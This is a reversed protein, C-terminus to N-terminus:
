SLRLKHICRMLFPSRKVWRKAKFAAAFGWVALQGARSTPWFTDVLAIEDPTYTDKYGAEGVGLDFSVLRGECCQRLIQVMLQEGSSWRVVDPSQDFSTFMGCCHQENTAAGFAAVIRDGAALAFLTIAPRGGDEPLRSGRDLFEFAGPADFPNTIGIEAMRSRKQEIFATLIQQRTAEDGATILRVPGAKSLSREKKRLKKRGDASLIRGFMADFDAELRRAYGFSPSPQGGAQALPNPVRNWTVPQNRLDFLDIDGIAAAVQDFFAQPGGHLDLSWRDQAYLPMNFNAHKGGPFSAIRLGGLRRIAFPLLAVPEQALEVTVVVLESGEVSGLTSGWAKVWDFRQYPTGLARREFARWTEEIAGLDRAVALVPMPQATAVIEAPDLEM